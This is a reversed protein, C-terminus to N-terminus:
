RANRASSYRVPGASVTSCSAVADNSAEMRSMRPGSVVPALSTSTRGSSTPSGRASSPRMRSCPTVPIMAITGDSSRGSSSAASASPPASVSRSRSSLPSASGTASTRRACATNPAPTRTTFWHPAVSHVIDDVSCVTSSPSSAAIAGTPCDIWFVRTYTSSASPSGVGIPTGPSAYM